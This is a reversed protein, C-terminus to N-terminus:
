PSPVMLRGLAFIKAQFINAIEDNIHPSREFIFWNFCVTFVLVFGACAFVGAPPRCRRAAPHTDMGYEAREQNLAM